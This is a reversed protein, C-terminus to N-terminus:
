AFHAVVTICCSFAKKGEKPCLHVCCKEGNATNSVSNM